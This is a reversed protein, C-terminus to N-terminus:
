ASRFQAPNVSSVGWFTIRTGDPLALVESGNVVTVAAGAPLGNPGAAGYGFLDLQDAENWNGILENGGGDFGQVLQFLNTGSGGILTDSGPGGVIFNNGTGAVISDSGTGAFFVDNGSAGGANLTVNGGGAVLLNGDTNGFLTLSGGNESFLVASGSVGAGVVTQNGSSGDLLFQGSGVFFVSNGPAGYLVASGQGAIVTSNIYPSSVFTLPGTNGFYVGGTAQAFVTEEGGGQVITDNGGQNCVESPGTNGYVVTGPAFTTITAEGGPAAVIVDEGWSQVTDDGSGLFLLNRGAAGSSGDDIFFHGATAYVTNDGGDFLLTWNYGTTQPANPGLAVVNNGGGAILTGSGGNLYFTLGGQGSLVSENLQGPAGTITAPENTFADIIGFYGFPVTATDSDSNVGGLVFVSLDDANQPPATPDDQINLRGQSAAAYIQDLLQAALQANQQTAFQLGITGGQMGPVTPVPVLL